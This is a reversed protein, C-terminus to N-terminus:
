FRARIADSDLEFSSEALALRKECVGAVLSNGSGPALLGPVCRATSGTHASVVLSQSDKVIGVIQYHGHVLLTLSKGFVFPETKSTLDSARRDGHRAVDNFSACPLGTAVIDSEEM